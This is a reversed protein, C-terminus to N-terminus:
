SAALTSAIRSLNSLAAPPLGKRTVRFEGFLVTREIDALHERMLRKAAEQRRAVDSATLPRGGEPKGSVGIVWREPKTEMVAAPVATAAAGALAAKLFMRRNM